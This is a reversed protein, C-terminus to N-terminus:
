RDKVLNQLLEQLTRLKGTDPADTGLRSAMAEGLKRLEENRVGAQRLDMALLAERVSRPGGQGPGQGSRGQPEVQAPPLSTAASQV